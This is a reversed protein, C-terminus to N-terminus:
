RQEQFMTSPRLSQRLNGLLPAYKIIDEMRKRQREEERRTLEIEVSWEEGIHLECELRAINDLVRNHKDLRRQARNDIWGIIIGWVCLLISSICIGLFIVSVVPEM